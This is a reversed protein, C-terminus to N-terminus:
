SSGPNVVKQMLILTQDTGVAAEQELVTLSVQQSATKSVQQSATKKV